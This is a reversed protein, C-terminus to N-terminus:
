ATPKGTHSPAVPDKESHGGADALGIAHELLSELRLGIVYVDHDAVELWVRSGVRHTERVSELRKGPSPDLM